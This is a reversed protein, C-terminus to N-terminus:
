TDGTSARRILVPDIVKHVPKRSHLPKGDKRANIQEVVLAVAEQALLEVQQGGHQRPHHGRPIRPLQGFGVIRYDDPLRGYKLFLLNIMTSALTDNSLFIGKKQGRYREEMDDILERLIALDSEHSRDVDRLM